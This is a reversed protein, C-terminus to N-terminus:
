EPIVLKPKLFIFSKLRWIAAFSSYRTVSCAAEAFPFHWNPVVSKASTRWFTHTVLDIWENNEPDVLQKIVVEYGKLNSASHMLAVTVSGQDDGTFELDLPGDLSLEIVNSVLVENRGLPPSLARPNWLSCTIFLPKTRAGRCFTVSGAAEQLNWTDGEPSVVRRILTKKSQTTDTEDEFGVEIEEEEEEGDDSEEAKSPFEDALPVKLAYHPTQNRGM